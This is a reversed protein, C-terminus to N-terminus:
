FSDLNTQLDALPTWPGVLSRFLWGFPTQSGPLPRYILVSPRLPPYFLRTSSKHSTLLIQLGALPTLPDMLLARPRGSPNPVRRLAHQPHLQVKLYM